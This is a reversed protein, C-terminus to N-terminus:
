SRAWITYNAPSLNSKSFHDLLVGTFNVACRLPATWRSILKLNIALMIQTWDGGDEQITWQSFGSAKLLHAFGHKTFRFYDFPEEHLPWYMPGTLILLGTSKLVRRFERLMKEPHPVHEIVQTCFVIDVAATRIPIQCADGLFDPSSDNITIDM